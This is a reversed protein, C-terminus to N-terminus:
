FTFRAVMQGSRPRSGAGNIYNVFGYGASLGGGPNANATATAPNTNGFSGVAPASYFLRNFVNQFEARVQLNYRGEKGIRFNRGLSLSEAPQRQWRYNNYYPASTGFEGGAADVWAAPNLALQKTPDFGKQNPDILLRNVGPVANYFTHGGGWLAPNNEPGRALQTLLNNGSPPTQILAGSQYRLLAGIQFDRVVNSLLKAFTGDGRIRPTVYTGSIVMAQPAGLTALQKNIGYNYVDNILPTGPTFYQTEASTGLVLNKSYTYSGQM